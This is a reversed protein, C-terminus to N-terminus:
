KNKVAYQVKSWDSYNSIFFAAISLTLSTSIFCNALIFICNGNLYYILLGIATNLGVNSIMNLIIFINIKNLSKLGMIATNLCFNPWGVLCYVFLLRLYWSRTEDSSSAFLNALRERCAYASIGILLGMLSTVFVCFQYYYRAAAHEKMGILINLRTRCIISYGIGIAHVLAAVALVSYFASTQNIDHFLLIFYGTVEVSIIDPSLGVMFKVSNWAFKGFDQITESFSLFVHTKQETCSYVYVAVMLICTECITKSLVWAELRWGRGLMLYLNAAITLLSFALYSVGFIKEHGQSLCFAKLSETLYNITALPISMRTMEQVMNALDEEIGIFTLCRGSFILFPLDICFHIIVMMLGNKCFINKVELYNQDGFAQSMLISSRENLYM